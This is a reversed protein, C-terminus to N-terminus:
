LNNEVSQLFIVIHLNLFLYAERFRQEAFLVTESVEISEDHCDIM